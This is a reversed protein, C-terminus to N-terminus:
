HGGASGEDSNMDVSDESEVVGVRRGRVLADVAARATWYARLADIADLESALQARLAAVLGFVGVQMANYQLLTQEFVRRRAPVIVDTYQRARLESSALRNRADRATSRIDIALGEYREMLADFQAEYAATTGENRDFIPLTISAGGGMEWTEGDQEGHVDVTVDPIWGEARSLGVRQGIAELRMRAERLEVSSEIAVRELEAPVTHEEASALPGAITWATAAGHLGMLRHLRERASARALELEATTARAEEYAAIQAALDLEPINGAEFLMQASDRSAALADLSRVAVALRQEAAQADYFAARVEYETEIVRGAVRFRAADLERSAAEVRMPTLLAETLEFAAFLEIQIPQEPDDQRRLDIEVEPNPLLSAQLVRGRDIGLERLTARLERNNAIAIRVAADADLPRELTATVAEHVMPDVLVSEPLDRGTLAEIRGLDSGIFTSACGSTLLTAWLMETRM